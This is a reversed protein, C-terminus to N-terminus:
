TSIDVICAEISTSIDDWKDCSKLTMSVQTDYCHYKINYRKIIEGVPKTYVSYNKPGLISGQPVDFLLGVDPSTEFSCNLVISHVRRYASQYIDNLDNHELHEKIRRALVKEILKFIFPLNSIPRYNKMEDKDLGSRKLLLTITARKLCLLM